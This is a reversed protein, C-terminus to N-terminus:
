SGFIERLSDHFHGKAPNAMNFEIGIEGGGEDHEIIDHNGAEFQDALWHLFSAMSKAVVLKESEDRGFVIIQGKEGVAGPDLDVGLNNGGWDKSFPIWGTNIYVEAVAGRPWSTQGDIEVNIDPSERLIDAWNQWEQVMGSLPLFECGYFLGPMGVQADQGDHALYLMRVDDPLRHGITAEAAAIDQETAGPLLLTRLQPLHADSWALIRAISASIDTMMTLM